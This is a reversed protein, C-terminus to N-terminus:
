KGMSAILLEIAIRDSIKGTKISEDLELSYFMARKVTEIDLNKSINIVKSAIFPTLGMQKAVADDRQGQQKLQKIGYIMRIQRIVMYLVKQMPEKLAAMDNLLSLAKSINGESIADTLDFIRSKITKTCVLEVDQMTIISKDGVFNVVKEIENLLETMSYESNEVIYSATMQDINKNYSKFVKLVWKVLDAPKQFAFEVILGNDKIAKVLKMRKDVETELFILYSYDPMNEIYQSLKDKTTGGTEGKKSKFLGSDKAVILKRDSFVPMTECNQIISESDTKGDFYIYNLDKTNEDIILKSILSVYYKILYDEPGYFLYINQLSDDKIQKKLIDLSM